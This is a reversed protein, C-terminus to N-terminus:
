ILVNELTVAGYKHVVHPEAYHDDPGARTVKINNNKKKEHVCECM